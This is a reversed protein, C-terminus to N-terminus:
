VSVVKCQQGGGLVASTRGRGSGNYQVAIRSSQNLPFSNCRSAKLSVYKCNAVSEIRNWPAMFQVIGSKIRGVLCGGVAWEGM